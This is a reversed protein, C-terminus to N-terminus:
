TVSKCHLMLHIIGQKNGCYECATTSKIKWKALRDNVFIKNLLLRFQFNRYKTIHTIQYLGKFANYYEEVDIFTSLFTEWKEKYKYVNVHSKDIVYNYVYQTPCQSCLKSLEINASTQMSDEGDRILIRWMTPIADTIQRFQLWDILVQQKNQFQERTLLNGEETFFDKIKLEGKITDTPKIAMQNVRLHSNYCILQNLIKSSNQPHQPLQNWVM